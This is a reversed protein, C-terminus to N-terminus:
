SRAEWREAMAELIALRAVKARYVPRDGSGKLPPGDPFEANITARLMEARERAHKHDHVIKRVIADVLERAPIALLNELAGDGPILDHYIAMAARVIKERGADTDAEALGVSLMQSLERAVKPPLLNLTKHIPAPKKNMTEPESYDRRLAAANSAGGTQVAAARHKLKEV